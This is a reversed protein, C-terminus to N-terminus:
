ATGLAKKAIEGWKRQGRRYHRPAGDLSKLVEHFMARAEDAEGVRQLLQACRCRAEEGPFTRILGKYEELAEGHKGQAELARAYTLHADNSVFGPNAAKLTDLTQQACAGDGDALQARALGYLLVPDDKHVGTLTNRYLDAADSYMGRAMYEEALGRKADVSGVMEVDRQRARFERNPDAVNRLSRKVSNAQRTTMMDSILEMFLYILSGIGPLFVIVMLWPNTRGTKIAHILCVVMLVTSGIIIPV